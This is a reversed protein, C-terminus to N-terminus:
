FIFIGDSQTTLIDVIKWTDSQISDEFRKRNLVPSTKPGTNGDVGM